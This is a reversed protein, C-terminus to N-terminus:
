GFQALWKKSALSARPNNMMAKLLDRKLEQSTGAYERILTNLLAEAQTPNKQYITLINNIKDMYYAECAAGLWKITEPNLNHLGNLIGKQFGKKWVSHKLNAHEEGYFTNIMKMYKEAIQIGFASSPNEHIHSKVTEVLQVYKEEFAKRDAETFRNEFDAKFRTYQKMENETFVKNRLIEELGQASNFVEIMKLIMPWPISEDLRCESLICKLAHSADLLNKAKKELILAQASLQDAIVVDGALLEQIQALSFGFFKLAIIQQLKLLDAESYLRYRSELRSSPKLLGIKDYHHLTQASVGTLKSLDNVYWQAM